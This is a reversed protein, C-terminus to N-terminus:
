SLFMSRLLPVMQLIGLQQQLSSSAIGCRLWQVFNSTSQLSATHPFRQQIVSKLQANEWMTICYCFVSKLQCSRKGYTGVNHVVIENIKNLTCSYCGITNPPLTLHPCVSAKHGNGCCRLCINNYCANSQTTHQVLSRTAVSCPPCTGALREALDRLQNPTPQQRERQNESIIGNELPPPPPPPPGGGNSGGVGASVAIHMTAPPHQTTPQAHSHQYESASISPTPPVIADSDQEEQGFGDDDNGHSGSDGRLRVNKETSNANRLHCLDCPQLKRMQCSRKDATGDAFEDLFWRRCKSRACLTTAAGFHASVGDGDQDFNRRAVAATPLASSSFAPTPLPPHLIISQAPQGDRGARGSEQLFDIVTSPLGLHVVCRVSPVDIGCGFASTAVMLRPKAASPALWKQLASSRQADTLDAHYLLCQITPCMLGFVHEVANCRQKNQIYLIIRTTQLSAAPADNPPFDSCARAIRDVLQAARLLMSGAPVQQVSYHINPRTTPSRMVQWNHLGCEEAVRNELTPPCTATMAIIPAPVNHPRIFNRVHRLATRFHKWVLILHAEDIFIAHLSQSAAANRLFRAYSPLVLHEASVFVIRVGLATSDAADSFRAATIGKAACRQILDQQLSVLPVVVISVKDPKMFAPLMFLLSKGGGTPMVVLLDPGPQLAHLIASKQQPSTFQADPCQLFTQLSTSAAATAAADVVACSSTADKHPPLLSSSSSLSTKRKREAAVPSAPTAAASRKTEQNSILVNINNDICDLRALIKATAFLDNTTATAGTASYETAILSGDPSPDVKEKSANLQESLAPSSSSFPHTKSTFPIPSGSPLHLVRHWTESANRYQQLETATIATLQSRTVGYTRTATHETHGAQLHLTATTAAPHQTTNEFQCAGAASPLFNKVVASHYHRYQTTNLPIKVSSLCHTFANRLQDPSATDFIYDLPNITSHDNKTSSSAVDLLVSPPANTATVAASTPLRPPPLVSPISEIQLKANILIQLPHIFLMYIHLLGATVADPCRVITKGTGDQMCRTKTYTLITLLQGQSVFLSRTAKPTNRIRLTAAETARAPGGSCIQLLTYLHNQFYEAHKIFQKASDKKLSDDPNFLYPHVTHIYARRWSNLSEYNHPHMLYWYGPSKEGLADQLTGLALWFQNNLRLGMLLKEQLLSWTNHQLKHVKAALTTVSLEHGDVIGCMSHRTCLVMHIHHGETDALRHCCRLNSAVVTAGSDAHESTAAALLKWAKERDAASRPFAYIHTVACCKALYKLAALMPSTEQATGFRFTAVGDSASRHVAACAIFLPIVCQNSELPDLMISRVIIHLKNLAPELDGRNATTCIKEFEDVQAHQTNTMFMIRKTQPWDSAAFLFSILRSLRALYSRMTETSLALRLPSQLFTHSKIYSKQAAVSFARHLYAALVRRAHPHPPRTCWQVSNFADHLSLNYSQLLVDFRMESLFADLHPAPSPPTSGPASGQNRHLLQMLTNSHENIVPFWATSKGGFISQAAVTVYKRQQYDNDPSSTAYCERLHRKIAEDSQKIDGCKSCQKCQIIPLFPLSPLPLPHQDLLLTDLYMQRDKTLPDPLPVQKKQVQSQIQAANESSLGHVQRLHRAVNEVKVAHSCKSDNCVAVDLFDSYSISPKLPNPSQVMVVPLYHTYILQQSLPIPQSRYHLPSSCCM